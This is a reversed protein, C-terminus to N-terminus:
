PSLVACSCSMSALRTSQLPTFHNCGGPMCSTDFTPLSLFIWLYCCGQHTFTSLAQSPLHSTYRGIHTEQCTQQFFSTNRRDLCWLDASGSGQNTNEFVCSALLKLSGRAKRDKRIRGDQGNFVLPRYSYSYGPLIVKQFYLPFDMKEIKFINVLVSLNKKSRKPWYKFFDFFPNGM